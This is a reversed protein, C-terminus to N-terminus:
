LEWSLEIGWRRPESLGYSTLFAAVHTMNNLYIENTLNKGFVSVSYRGDIDKYTVSADFLNVKGREGRTSGDIAVNLNSVYTYRANFQLTGANGVPVEYNAGLSLQWKPARQLPLGTLDVPVLYNGAGTSGPTTVNIVTGCESTPATAFMAPGDTDACFDSYKADLFGLSGSLQLGEVPIATIELEVGKIDAAAANETVVEQGVAVGPVPRVISRQLGKYKNLFFAVNARLKNDFWDSKLGLEFANVTEPNYPGASTPTSLQANWGGSRFGKSYTFYALANDTFKYDIGAKPGFDNWSEPDFILLPNPSAFPGPTMAEFSKREWTFRGGATITLADTLHYNGEAFVSFVKHSQAAYGIQHNRPLTPRSQIFIEHTLSFKQYMGYIGAVFDFKDWATSAFRLESSAQKHPEDRPTWWMPVVSPDVELVFFSETKRYNSVWTIEGPGVDWILEGTIGWIKNKMTAENGLTSGVNFDDKTFKSRPIRPEGCDGWASCLTQPPLSGNVAPTQGADNRIYEGILTLTLDDNPRFRLIPRIAFNDEKGIKKGDLTNRYYGSSQSSLVAVKADFKDQVIPVDVSARVELQGYQGVTLSGRTGFEGSPRRTRVQVAGASTNRGFLTGQPGRLIELSEVDFMDLATNNPRPFYVGDVFVAVP